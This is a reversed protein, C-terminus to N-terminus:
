VGDSCGSNRFTRYLHFGYKLRSMWNSFIVLFLIPFYKGHFEPNLTNIQFFRNQHIPGVFAHIRIFPLWQDHTELFKIAEAPLNM